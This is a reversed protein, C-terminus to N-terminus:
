FKVESQRRRLSRQGTKSFSYSFPSPFSLFWSAQWINVAPSKRRMNARAYLDLKHVPYPPSKSLCFGNVLVYLLKNTQRFFFPALFVQGLYEKVQTRGSRCIVCKYADLKGVNNKRQHLPRDIAFVLVM